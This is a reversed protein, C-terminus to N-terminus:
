ERVWENIGGSMQINFRKCIQGNIWDGMWANIERNRIQKNMWECSVSM